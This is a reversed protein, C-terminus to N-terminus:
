PDNLKLSSIMIFTNLFYESSIINKVIKGNIIVSKMKGLKGSLKIICKLRAPSASLIPLLFSNIINGKIFINNPMNNGIRGFLFGEAEKKLLYLTSNM